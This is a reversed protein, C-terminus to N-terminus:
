VLLWCSRVAERTVWETNINM